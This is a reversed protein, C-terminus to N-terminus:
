AKRDTQDRPSADGGNDGTHEANITELKSQADELRVALSQILQLTADRDPSVSGAERELKELADRLADTLSGLVADTKIAAMVKSVYGRDRKISALIRETSDSRRVIAVPPVPGGTSSVVEIDDEGVNDSVRLVLGHAARSSLIEAKVAKVRASATKSLHVSNSYYDIASRLIDAEDMSVYFHYLM